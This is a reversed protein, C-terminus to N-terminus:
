AYNDEGNQEQQKQRWLLYDLLANELILRATPSVALKGQHTIGFDSAILEIVEYIDSDVRFWVIAM